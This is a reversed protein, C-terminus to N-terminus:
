YYIKKENNGEIYKKNQYDKEERKVASKCFTEPAGKEQWLAMVRKRKGSM